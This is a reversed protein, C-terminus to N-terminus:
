YVRLALYIIAVAGLAIIALRLRQSSLTVAYRAGTYGGILSGAAMVLGTHWHIFHASYLCVISTAAVFTAAVNKMGNMMHADPMNTLGLFALMMFGYGAGFYGGYFSLPITALGLLVMPWWATRRGKVHEHLHFHLVPQITFLIIGFLLLVPVMDAFKGASTHRLTIAGGIAGVIVPLILLAYRRPVRRIYHRYGFASALQGPLTVINATANAYLAPVGLAILVPFGILMGGGAIANMGGVIFGAVLLIIDHAM